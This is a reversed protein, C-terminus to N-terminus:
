RPSKPHPSPKHSNAHLPSPPSHFSGHLPTPNSQIPIPLSNTPMQIPNFPIPQSHIIRANSPIPFPTYPTQHQFSHKPKPYSYLQSSQESHISDSSNAAKFLLTSLHCLSLISPQMSIFTYQACRPEVKNLRHGELSVFAICFIYLMFKLPTCSNSSPM